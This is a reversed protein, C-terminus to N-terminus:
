RRAKTFRKNVAEIEKAKVAMLFRPYWWTRGNRVLYDRVALRYGQKDGAMAAVYYAPLEITVQITQNLGVGDLNEWKFRRTQGSGLKKRLRVARPVDTEEAGMLASALADLSGRDLDDLDDHLMGM